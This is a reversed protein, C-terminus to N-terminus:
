ERARDIGTLVTRVPVLVEALRVPPTKRLRPRVAQARSFGITAARVVQGAVQVEASGMEATNSSVAAAAPAVQAVVGTLLALLSLLLRNMAPRSLTDAGLRGTWGTKHRTM